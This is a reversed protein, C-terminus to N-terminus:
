SQSRIRGTESSRLTFDFILPLNFHLLKGYPMSSNKSMKSSNLQALQFIACPTLNKSAPWSELPSIRWLGFDSSLTALYLLLLRLGPTWITVLAIGIASISHLTVQTHILAGLRISKRIPAWQCNISCQLFRQYLEDPCHIRSPKRVKGFKEVKVALRGLKLVSCSRRRNPFLIYKIISILEITEIESLSLELGVALIWGGM